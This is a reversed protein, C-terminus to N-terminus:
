SLQIDFHVVRAERKTTVQLGSQYFVKLMAANEPLVEAVLRKLGAQRALIILHRLLAGGIGQGQYQDVVVFAVEAQSPGSVVYRAGGAIVPQGGEEFVAVLAVHTIFDLRLYHDIEQESFHRKGGFFRRYLSADSTREVAAMFNARDEPRLARITLRQGNRLVEVASYNAPDRM